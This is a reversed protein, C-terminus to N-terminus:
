RWQHGQDHGQLTPRGETVKVTKLRAVGYKAGVGFMNESDTADCHMALGYEEELNNEDCGKVIRGRGSGGWSPSLEM